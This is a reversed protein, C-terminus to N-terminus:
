DRNQYRFFQTQRGISDCLETFYPCLSSTKLLLPDKRDKEDM